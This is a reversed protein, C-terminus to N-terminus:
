DEQVYYHGMRDWSDDNDRDWSDDNDWGDCICGCCPCCLCVDEDAM